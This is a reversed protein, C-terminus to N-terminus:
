FFDLVPVDAGVPKKVKQRLAPQEEFLVMHNVLIKDVFHLAEQGHFDDPSSNQIRIEPRKQESDDPVFATVDCVGQFLFGVMRPEHHLRQSGQVQHTVPAATALTPAATQVRWPM